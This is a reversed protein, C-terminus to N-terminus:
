DRTGVVSLDLGAVGPRNATISEPICVPMLVPGQELTQAIIQRIPGAREEPETVSRSQAILEDVGGFDVDGFNMPGGVAHYRTAWSSTPDPRGVQFAGVIIEFDGNRRRDQLTTAVDIQG